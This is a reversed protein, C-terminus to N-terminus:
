GQETAKLFARLRQRPTIHALLYWLDLHSLTPGGLQEFLIQAFQKQLGHLELHDQLQAPLPDSLLFNPFGMLIEEKFWAHQHWVSGFEWLHARLEWGLRECCRTNLVDDSLDDEPM